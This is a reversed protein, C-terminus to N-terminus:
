VPGNVECRRLLELTKVLLEVQRDLPPRPKANPFTDCSHGVFQSDQILTRIVPALNQINGPKESAVLELLKTVV